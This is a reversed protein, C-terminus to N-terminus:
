RRSDPRRASVAEDLFAHLAQRRPLGTQAGLATTELAAAGSALRIADPWPMREALAVALGATFADGAGTSDVRSVPLEPAWIEDSASM